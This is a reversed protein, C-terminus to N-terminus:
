LVWERCQKEKNFFSIAVSINCGSNWTYWGHTSPLLAASCRGVEENADLVGMFESSTSLDDARSLMWQPEHDLYFFASDKM